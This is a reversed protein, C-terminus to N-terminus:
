ELLESYKTDLDALTQKEDTIGSFYGQIAPGILDNAGSELQLYVWPKIQNDRMYQNYDDLYPYSLKSDCDMPAVSSGMTNRTYSGWGNEPDNLFKLVEKVEDPHKTNKNVVVCIGVDVDLKADQPDDTLPVAFLGAKLNPDISEANLLSFEGTLIMAAEGSAFANFGSTSDADMYNSGSNEKMLDMFEFERDSNKNKFSGKGENMDNIWTKYDGVATGQLCSFLHNLTWSEQYTAAFPTINKENLKACVDKLESFTEPVETIGAKEFLDQNYFIGLMEIELPYAYVKGEYSSAEKAFDYIEPIFDQDSLDMIRDNKAFEQVQSYPNLWFLDPLDDSAVKAGLFQNYDGTQMEVDFEINDHAANFAEAAKKHNEAAGSGWVAMKVPTKGSKDSMSEKSRSKESNQSSKGDVSGCAFLTASMTVMLLLSIIKKKM